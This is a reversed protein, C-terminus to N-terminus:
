KKKFVGDREKDIRGGDYGCVGMRPSNVVRFNAYEEYDSCEKKHKKGCKSCLFLHDVACYTKAIETNCVECVIELPNNRSLLVIPESAPLYFHEIFEIDLKTTSGFDYEYKLKKGKEFQKSIKTKMNIEGPYLDDEENFLFNIRNKNAKAIDTFASMHECCELWIARLFSDVDYFETTQDVWLMLFMEGASVKLLYSSEKKSNQDNEMKSLHSKLHRVLGSRKYTVGCFKCEGESNLKEM